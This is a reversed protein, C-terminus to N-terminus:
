SDLDRKNDPEPTLLTEIRTRTSGEPLEKFVDKLLDGLINGKAWERLVDEESTNTEIAFDKDFDKNVKGGKIKVGAELERVASEHNKTGWMMIRVPIGAKTLDIQQTGGNRMYIWADRPVGILLSLVGDPFNGVAFVIQQDKNPKPDM